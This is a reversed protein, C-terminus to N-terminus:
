PKRRKAASTRGPGFWPLPPPGEAIRCSQAHPNCLLGHARDHLETLELSLEASGQTGPEFRMAWVLGERVQVRSGTEHRWWREAAARREAGREAVLAVPEGPDFPTADDVAIRVRCREKAPNYFQTSRHLLEELDARGPLPGRIEFFRIRRLSKLRGGAALRERAVAEATVAEPDDSLLEVFAQAIPVASASTSV